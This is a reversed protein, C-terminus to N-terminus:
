SLRSDFFAAHASDSEFSASVIWENVWLLQRSEGSAWRWGITVETMTNSQSVAGTGVLEGNIFVRQEGNRVSASLTVWEGNPQKGTPVQDGWSTWRWSGDNGNGDDPARLASEEGSNRTGWGGVAGRDDASSPIFVVAALTHDSGVSIGANEYVYHENDKPMEVAPLGAHNVRFTATDDSSTAGRSGDVLNEWKQPHEGEGVTIGGAWFQDVCAEFVTHNPTPVRPRIQGDRISVGHQEALDGEWDNDVGWQARKDRLVVRPNSIFRSSESSM